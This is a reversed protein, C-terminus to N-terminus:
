CVHAYTLMCRCVDDDELLEHGADLAATWDLPLLLRHLEYMREEEESEVHARAYAGRSSSTCVSRRRARLMWGDGSACAYM